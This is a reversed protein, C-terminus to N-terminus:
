RGPASAETVAGLQGLDDLAPLAATVAGELSVLWPVDLGPDHATVTMVGGEGFTGGMSAVTVLEGGAYRSHVVAPSAGPAGPAVKQDAVTVGSSPHAVSCAESEACPVGSARGLVVSVSWADAGRSVRYTSSISLPSKDISLNGQTVTAGPLEALVMSRLLGAVRGPDIASSELERELQAGPTEAASPGGASVSATSHSPLLSAGFPAAASVAVVGVAVGVAGSWRRRVQARKGSRLAQAADPGAAPEDVLLGALGSKLEVDVM